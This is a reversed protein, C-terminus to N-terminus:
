IEMLLIVTLWFHMFDPLEDREDLLQETIHKKWSSNAVEVFNHSLLVYILETRQEPPPEEWLFTLIIHLM